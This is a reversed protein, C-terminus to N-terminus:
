SKGILKIIADELSYKQKWNPVIEFVSLPVMVERDRYDRKGWNINLRRGTVQEFVKAMEKLNMRQNSSVVYCKNNFLKRNEGQLNDVMVGFASVVDDIFSIDIIQKGRSMDFHKGSKSYESWLNFVKLREDNPGFTDNLKITTFILNSTETYFLAIKEFAEKTAAYLNVPNYDGGLYHQWFTGTNIFWKTNYNKSLELLYVGYEINGNILNKIDNSNHESIVHSAFHVVGSITYSEFVTKIDEFSDFKEIKCGIGELQRIDSSSRVLAVIDYDSYFAKIFEKGIYGTGGTVLLSV